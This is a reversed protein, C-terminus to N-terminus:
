KILLYIWYIVTGTGILALGDRTKKIVSVAADKAFFYVLVVFLLIVIGLIEFNKM